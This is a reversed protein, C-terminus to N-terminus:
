GVPEKTEEMRLGNVSDLKLIEVWAAEARKEPDANVGQIEKETKIEAM